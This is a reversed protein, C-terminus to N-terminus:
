SFIGLYDIMATPTSLEEMARMENLQVEAVVCGGGRFAFLYVWRDCEGGGRDLRKECRIFGHEPFNHDEPIHHGVPCELRRRKLYRWWREPNPM